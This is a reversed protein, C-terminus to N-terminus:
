KSNPNYWISIGNPGKGVRVTGIQEDRVTDIVSVDQSLLNTVYLRTGAVDIVVGHPGAGAEIEKVVRREILDIKYIYKGSPEKFYYGQDAVYVFRSDPTPYVQVPGKSEGGLDVYNVSKDQTNYIALRKTDYLTVVVFIGDPTVGTQIAQGDLTVFSYSESELRLIGLNKGSINAIYAASGDPSIRLGHPESNDPLSIEKEVGYSRTNIKYVTNLQQATVYAYASDPSFVVHALHAGLAVPVRRIIRDTFPSIVIIEDKENLGLADNEEGHAYAGTVISSHNEHGSINGTVWVTKNDPAVQINHPAITLKGGDHSRSLDITKMVKQTAPDIVSVIGADEVAVYIKQPPVSIKSLNAAAVVAFVAAGALVIIILKKPTM